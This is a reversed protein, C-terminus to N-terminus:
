YRLHKKYWPIVGQKRHYVFGGFIRVGWFIPLRYRKKVGEEVMLALFAADAWVRPYGSKYFFDHWVAAAATRNKLWAYFFPVRPITDLDSEFGHPMRIRTTGDSNNPHLVASLAPVTVFHDGHVVWRTGMRKLFVTLM